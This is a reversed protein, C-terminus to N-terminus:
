FRVGAKGQSEAVRAESKTKRDRVTTRSDGTDLDLGATTFAARIYAEPWSAKADDSSCFRAHRMRRGEGSLVQQLDPLSVGNFFGLNAHKSYGTIYVVANGPRDDPGYHLSVTYGADLTIEHANPAVALVRERLQLM